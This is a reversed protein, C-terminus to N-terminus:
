GLFGSVASTFADPQDLNALHGANPLVALQSKPIAKAMAEAAAPPTIADEAGVVVLTGCTIEKLTPTSDPRDALARLAGVIGSVPAAAMMSRVQDTLRSNHELTRPALMKPLLLDAIAAAGAKGAAEAMAERREKEEPTDADAKTDALILRQVSDGYRRWFEFAIYGGMSLGALVVRNIKLADLFGKLDEAYQAMSFLGNPAVTEGFGRLDPALVRLGGSLAEVQRTWMEKSLPFAHVLVLAPGSGAELYAVSQGGVQVFKSTLAM